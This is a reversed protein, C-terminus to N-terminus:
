FRALEIARTERIVTVKIVGNYSIDKEIQEKITRAISSMFHDNIAEPKVIVRIERGAQVAYSQAVGKISNAISELKTLRQIYNEISEKRAGPRAASLTDAIAVLAGITTDAVQDEHHSAIADIVEKKEKYKYALATGIEVHGGEMEHDLAKGIDHFLGARRAIIEDEGLEAALKGALFAVELSHKLVNQTYSLRFHLKGLLQILDPHVEGIKTMFVAEEGLEKIFNNVESTSQELAKEIRSPHIRGDLVLLELTKKAIERRVPNFSSLVVTLPSEDIILDVGTLVELAKINRGQRGIIRGKMEENPIDVVSINKEGTIDSSYSQMTSILLMKAKKSVELKAKEEEKKIYMFIENATKNRVEEMIIKKAEEQNLSAIQELKNKQNQSIIEQEKIQMELKNKTYNIKRLEEDLYQERKNLNETRNNFLEERRNNKEELKVIINTREHLDREMKNRLASIEIKANRVIEKGYTELEESKEQVQKKFKAQEQHIKKRNFFYYFLYGTSIGLSFFVVPIFITNFGCSVQNIGKKKIIKKNITKHNM